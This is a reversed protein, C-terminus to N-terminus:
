SSVSRILRKMHGEINDVDALLDDVNKYYGLDKSLMIFYRLEETYTLVSRYYHVKNKRARKKFGMAINIPIQASAERIQQALSLLERKPFKTTIKYLEVVLDHSKQWVIMDQFSEVKKQM